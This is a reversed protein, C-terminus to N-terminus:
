KGEVLQKFYEPDLQHESQLKVKERLREYATKDDYFEVYFWQENKKCKTGPEAETKFKDILETFEGDRHYKEGEFLKLDNIEQENFGTLIIDLDETNALEDLLENLKVMDWDGTIRNLALNLAKARKDDLDVRVVPVTKLGAKQAAKLRQHGGIVTGDKNAVVPEVFGYEKISRVLRDLIEPAITRPNGDFPKLDKVKVDETEM